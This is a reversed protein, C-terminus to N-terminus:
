ANSDIFTPYKASNVPNLDFLTPIYKTFIVLTLDLSSFTSQTKIALGMTSTMIWSQINRDDVKDTSQM